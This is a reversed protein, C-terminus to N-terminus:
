SHMLEEVDVEREVSGNLQEAGAGFEQPIDGVGGTSLLYETARPLCNACRM